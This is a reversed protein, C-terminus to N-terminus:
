GLLTRPPKIAPPFVIGAVMITLLFCLTAAFVAAALYSSILAAMCHAGCLNHNHGVQHGPASDDHGGAGAHHSTHDADAHAYVVDGVHEHAHELAHTLGEQVPAALLLLALLLNLMKRTNM